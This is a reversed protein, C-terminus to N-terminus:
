ARLSLNLPGKIEVVIGIKRVMVAMALMKKGGSSFEWSQRGEDRAKSIGHSFVGTLDHPVIDLLHISGSVAGGSEAIFSNGKEGAAILCLASDFCVVASNSFAEMADCLDKAHRADNTQPAAPSPKTALINRWLFFGAVAIMTWGIINLVLNM